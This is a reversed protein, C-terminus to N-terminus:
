ANPTEGKDAEAVLADGAKVADDYLKWVDERLQALRRRMDLTAGFRTKAFAAVDAKTTLGDLQLAFANTDPTRVPPLDVVTEVAPESVPPTTVTSAAAPAAAIAQVVAQAVAPSASEVIKGDVMVAERFGPTVSLEKTWVFTAGDERVVIRLPTSM